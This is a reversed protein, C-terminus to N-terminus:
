SEKSFQMQLNKKDVKRIATKLNKHMYRLKQGIVAIRQNFHSLKDELLEKLDDYIVSNNQKSWCNCVTSTPFYFISSKIYKGPFVSTALFYEHVKKKEYM